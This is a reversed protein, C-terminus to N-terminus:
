FVVPLTHRHCGSLCAQVIMAIAQVDTVNALAIGHGTGPLSDALQQLAERQRGLLTLSAGEAALRHAIEAGIGRAAGTVVADRSSSRLSASM